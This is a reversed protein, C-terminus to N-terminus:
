EFQKKDLNYIDDYTGKSLRNLLEKEIATELKAANLAEAERKTDRKIVRKNISQLTEQTHMSSIKLRRMRIIM